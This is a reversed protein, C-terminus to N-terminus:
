LEVKIAYLTTGDDRDIKAMHASHKKPDNVDITFEGKAAESWAKQAAEMDEELRKVEADYTQCRQGSEGDPDVMAALRDIASPAPMAPTAQWKSM